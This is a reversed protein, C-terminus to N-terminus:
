PNPAPAGTAAGGRRRALEAQQAAIASEIEQDSLSAFDGNAATAAAEDTGTGGADTTAGQVGYYVKVKNRQEPLSRLGSGSKIAPDSGFVQVFLCKLKSWTNVDDPSDIGLAKQIEVSPKMTVM